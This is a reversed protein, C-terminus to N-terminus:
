GEFGGQKIYDALFDRAYLGTQYRAIETLNNPSYVSTYSDVIVYYTANPDINRCVETGYDGCYIYYRDNDTEVFREKLDRGQISCLVLDNDFPFLSQLQGYTVDGAPLTYPSRISFFGGGLVINYDNGWLEVGKQYYLQAVKQCLYRSTRNTFNYGLVEKSVSVTEDYKQLLQEVIPDGALPMYASVPVHEALRTKVSGNATNVSLEVHSIGSSNDGGCQLHYVGYEDKLIYKQHTHGEFVLDVYGDSLSMDYYYKLNGSHVNKVSSTGQEYGDHILYVIVDAGQSRLNDSEAKVLRTLADGTKFYIDQVKEASISSYCDGIAGIIGIQIGGREIMVSSRCYDVRTDTGRDYVNIGLLPFEAQNSNAQVPKAGWDYEHNGLAMGSFGMSSMWDTIILGQTLNSEAQGQWMDGSSTLVVHDNLNKEQKLYTSLEDVGPHNEGDALKGHLDNINYFDIAVIVITDCVDCRGDNEADVHNTCQSPDVPTQPQTAPETQKESPQTAIEPADTQEPASPQTQEQTAIESGVTTEPPTARDCGSILLCLCLAIIIWIKKM